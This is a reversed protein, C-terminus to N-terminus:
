TASRVHVWEVLRTLFAKPLVPFRSTMLRMVPSRLACSIIRTRRATGRHYRRMLASYRDLVQGGQLIARAALLGSRMAQGIGEGTYPEEYGAADGILLVNDVGLRDPSWPFGACGRSGHRGPSDPNLARMIPADRNLRWLRQFVSDGGPEGVEAATAVVCQNEIPTALGVYGGRLWHLEICGIRPLPEHAPQVWQQSILRRQRQRGTIGLLRVVRGIGCAVLIHNARISSGNAIVRWGAKKNRGNGERELTASQGFRVDAGEQQATQALCSDLESRLAMRTRGRSHCTLRCSGMVFTITDGAIGPLPCSGALIQTLTATATGSLCGGCVKPRPFREKEILIPRRGGRALAIAATSGAPGAGIIVVDTHTDASSM